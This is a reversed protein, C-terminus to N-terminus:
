KLNILLRYVKYIYTNTYKYNFYYMFRTLFKSMIIFFSFKSGTKSLASQLFCFDGNSSSAIAGFHTHAQTYVDVKLGLTNWLACKEQRKSKTM